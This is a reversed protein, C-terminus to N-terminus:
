ILSEVFKASTPIYSPKGRVTKFLPARSCTGSQLVEHQLALIHSTKDTIDTAKATMRWEYLEKLSCLRKEM